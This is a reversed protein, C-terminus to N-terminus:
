GYLSKVSAPAVRFCFVNGRRRDLRSVRGHARIGNVIIERLDDVIERNIQYFSHRCVFLFRFASIGICLTCVVCNIGQKARCFPQNTTIIWDILRFSRAKSLFPRAYKLLDIHGEVFTTDIVDLDLWDTDAEETEAAGDLGTHRASIFNHRQRRQVVDGTVKETHVPPCQCAPEGMPLALQVGATEEWPSSPTAAAAAIATEDAENDNREDPCLSSRATCTESPAVVVPLISQTSPDGRQLTSPPLERRARFCFLRKGM